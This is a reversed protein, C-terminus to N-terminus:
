KRDISFKGPGLLAIVLFVVAYLLAKEKTGFPDQAHVVFAAVLMTVLSPIAAIRTKFGIIMLAPALVEGIVTLFLSPAQGIGLPDAFAFDGAILKNLKPIGHTMLMISPLIRLIALGIDTIPSNKM